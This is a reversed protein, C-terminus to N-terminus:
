KRNKAAFGIFGLGLMLMGLTSGGDPVGNLEGVEVRFAGVNNAWGYGDMTGMFFKTARAPVSISGASGMVFIDAFAPGTFVGILSDIPATIDPIGHNAGILHNVIVGAAGDPDAVDGPHGVQGSATWILTNGPTVSGAFVPAQAPM